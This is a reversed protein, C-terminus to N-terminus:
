NALSLLYSVSNHAVLLWYSIHPMNACLRTIATTPDSLRRAMAMLQRTVWKYNKCIDDSYM